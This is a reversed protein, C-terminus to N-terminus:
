IGNPGAMIVWSDALAGKRDQRVIDLLICSAVMGGLGRFLNQGSQRKQKQVATALTVIHDAFDLPIPRNRLSVKIFDFPSDLDNAFHDFGAQLYEDLQDVTCLKRAMEKTASAGNCASIIADRLKAAQSDIRLYTTPHKIPIRVVKISSYYCKLLDIVSNVKRGLGKWNNTRRLFGPEKGFAEAASRLLDDTAEQIDWRQKEEGLDVANLAIIAHPLV